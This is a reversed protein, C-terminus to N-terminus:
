PSVFEGRFRRTGGQGLHHTAHSGRKRARHWANTLVRPPDGHKTLSRSLMAIKTALLNLKEETEPSPNEAHLGKLKEQEALTNERKIWYKMQIEEDLWRDWCEKDIKGDSPPGRERLEEPTLMFAAGSTLYERIQQRQHNRKDTLSNSIRDVLVKTAIRAGNRFRDRVQEIIRSKEEESRPKGDGTRSWMEWKRFNAKLVQQLNTKFEFYSSPCPAGADTLDLMPMRKRREEREKEAARLTKQQEKQLKRLAKERAVPTLEELPISAKRKKEERKKREGEKYLEVSSSATRKVSTELM